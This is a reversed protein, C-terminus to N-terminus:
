EYEGKDTLILLNDGQPERVLGIIRAFGDEARCRQSMIRYMLPFYYHLASLMM